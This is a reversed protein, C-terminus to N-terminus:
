LNGAHGPRLRKDYNLFLGKLIDTANEPENIPPITENGVLKSTEKLSITSFFLLIFSTNNGYKTGDLSYMVSSWNLSQYLGVFPEGSPKQFCGFYM